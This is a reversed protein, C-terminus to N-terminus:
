NELYDESLAYDTYLTPQKVYGASKLKFGDKTYVPVWVGSTPFEVEEYFNIDFM